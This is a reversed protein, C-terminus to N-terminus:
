FPCYREGYTNPEDFEFCDKGNNWKGLHQCNTKYRPLKVIVSSQEQVPEPRQYVKDEALWLDALDDGYKVKGAKYANELGASVQISAFNMRQCQEKQAQTQLHNEGKGGIWRFKEGTKFGAVENAWCDYFGADPFVVVSRGQLPELMRANFNTVNGCSLWVFQPQFISGLMAVKESEAVAITKQKNGPQNILHEGFLCQQFNWDNALIGERMLKAHIWDYHYGDDKYRHGDAQYELMKGTRVAGAKDILWYITWNDIEGIHYRSVMESILRADIKSKLFQILTNEESEIKTVYDFPLIDPAKPKVPLPEKNIPKHPTVQKTAAGDADDYVYVGIYSGLIEIARKYEVHEIEQIFKVVDGQAGCAFCKYMMKSPTVFFNGLHEDSHFPCLGTYSTGRHHLDIYRGIISVLDKSARDKVEKEINSPIM